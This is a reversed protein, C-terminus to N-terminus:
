DQPVAEPPRVTLAAELAKIAAEINEARGGQIRSWYAGGVNNQTM